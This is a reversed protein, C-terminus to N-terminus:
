KQSRPPCYWEITLDEKQSKFLNVLRLCRSESPKANSEYRTVSDFMAWSVLYVLMDLQDYGSTNGIAYTRNELMTITLKGYDLLYWWGKRQVRSPKVTISKLYKPKIGTERIIWKGINRVVHNPINALTSTVRM